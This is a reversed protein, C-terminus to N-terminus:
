KVREKIKNKVTDFFECLWMLENFSLLNNSVLNQAFIWKDVGTCFDKGEDKPNSTILFNPTGDGDRYFQFSLEAYRRAAFKPKQKEM